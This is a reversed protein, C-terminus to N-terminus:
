FMPSRAAVLISDRKHSSFNTRILANEIRLSVLPSMSMYLAKICANAVTRQIKQLRPLSTSQVLSYIQGTFLVTTRIWGGGGFCQEHHKCM